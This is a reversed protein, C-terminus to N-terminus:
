LSHNNSSYLGLSKIANLQAKEHIKSWDTIGNYVGNNNYVVLLFATCHVMLGHGSDRDCLRHHFLIFVLTAALLSM